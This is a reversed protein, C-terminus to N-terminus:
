PLSEQREARAKITGIYRRGEWSMVQHFDSHKLSVVVLNCGESAGAMAALFNGFWSTVDTPWSTSWRAGDSDLLGAPLGGIFVRGRGRPGRIVSQLTIIGATQASVPPTTGTGHVGASRPVVITPTSGDYPTVEVAGLTVASSHLARMSSPSSQDYSAIFNAAVDNPDSAGAAQFNWINAFSAEGCTYNNAVRFCNTLVPLPPM